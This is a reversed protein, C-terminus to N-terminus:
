CDCRRGLAARGGQQVGSSERDETVMFTSSTSDYGYV